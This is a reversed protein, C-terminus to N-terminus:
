QPLFTWFSIHQCIAVLNTTQFTGPVGLPVNKTAVSFDAQLHDFSSNPSLSSLFRLDSVSSDLHSPPRLSVDRSTPVHKPSARIFLDLCTASQASSGTSPPQGTPALLQGPSPTPGMPPAVFTEQVDCACKTPRIPVFSCFHWCLLIYDLFLPTFTADEMDRVKTWNVNVEYSFKIATERGSNM